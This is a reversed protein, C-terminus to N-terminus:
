SVCWHALHLPSTELLLWQDPLRATSPMLLETFVSRFDVPEQQVPRVRRLSLLGQLCRKCANLQLQPQVGPRRSVYRYYNILSRKSGM